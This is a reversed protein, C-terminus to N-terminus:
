TYTLALAAELDYFYALLQSLQQGSAVEAAPDLPPEVHLATYLLRRHVIVATAAHEAFTAIAAIAAQRSVAFAALAIALWPVAYSWPLLAALPLAVIAIVMQQCRKAIDTSATELQDAASDPLV